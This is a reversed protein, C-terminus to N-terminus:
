EEKRFDNTSIVFNYGPLNVIVEGDKHDNDYSCDFGLLQLGRAIQSGLFIKADAEDTPVYEKLITETNTRPM